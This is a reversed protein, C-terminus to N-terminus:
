FTPALLGAAENSMEYHCSRCFQSISNSTPNKDDYWGRVFHATPRSVGQGNINVTTTSYNHPDHCSSCEIYPVGSSVYFRIPRGYVADFHSPAFSFGSSTVTGPWYASDEVPYPINFPHNHTLDSGPMSGSQAISGDHCVLCVASHFSPDADTLEPSLTLTGGDFTDYATETFNGWLYSTSVATPDISDSSHCSQCGQGNINHPGLDQAATVATLVVTVLLSGVWALKM